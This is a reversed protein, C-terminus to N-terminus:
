RGEVSPDDVTGLFPEVERGPEFEGIRKIEWELLIGSNEHVRRRVTEGLTELDHASATGTNIMFNCHMESMQADGVMLGRCGAKDIEKWASTGEPNKFTSGGTKEKVPQVTERHHQVEDMKAQIDSPDGSPGEFVAGTFILDTDASSHRYAYGMEENTLVHRRGDRGLAHVEVVRERTEVGNAGANMRLAGGVSGPIGHYFHFGALGADLAAAALRKDPCATGARLRTEGVREVSGFGKASLRIVVGPIGGDRVMLNSGIGVVRVPIDVPIAALLLALDEEDAPMALLDAPGGVRFWTVKEMPANATLRGRFDGLRAQLDALLADGGTM